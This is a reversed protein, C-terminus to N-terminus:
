YTLIDNIYPNSYDSIIDIFYISGNDDQLYVCELSITYDVWIFGKSKKNKFIDVEKVLNQYNLDCIKISKEYQGFSYTYGCDFNIICCLIQCILLSNNIVPYLM